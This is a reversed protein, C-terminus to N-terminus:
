RGLSGLPYGLDQCPRDPGEAATVHPVAGNTQLAAAIRKQARLIRM